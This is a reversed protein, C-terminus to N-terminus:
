NPKASAKAARAREYLRAVLPVNARLREIREQGSPHTSLWSPAASKAVRSMKEWLTISAQPDYGARAALELGLLDAEREDDRSFKLALVGGGHRVLEGAGGGVLVAMVIAGANTLTNKAARARAHERLAHAIEHGIVHAAEDDTLGLGDLLGSFIIIKGGPLCAANVTRSRVVSVEWKWDKARANWKGTHQLLEQAIRQVRKTQPDEAPALSGKRAALERMQTYQLGAAQELRSASVLYRTFAPRRLKIGEDEARQASAPLGALAVSILAIAVIIRRM